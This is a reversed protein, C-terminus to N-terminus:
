WSYRLTFRAEDRNRVAAIGSQGESFKKPNGNLLAPFYARQVKGPDGGFYSLSIGTTFNGSFRYGLGWLVAYTSTDWAYAFTIRPSLRDQFYGTFATLTLLGTWQGAFASYNGDYDDNGGEYDPVYRLFMQSNVFFSRNPNIFNIFTPRDVSVTLVYIDSTSRGTYSNTNSISAGAIWSFEVGWSTRTVDEAFDLAFGFVNRKQYDIYYERGAQWQFDRRGYRGDGAAKKFPLTQGSASLIASVTACGSPTRVPFNEGDKGFRSEFKEQEGDSFFEYQIAEQLTDGPLGSGCLINDDSIPGASYDDLGDYVGDQDEDFDRIIFQDGRKTDLDQLMFNSLESATGTSSTLRIEANFTQIAGTPDRWKLPVTVQKGSLMDSFTQIDNSELEYMNVLARQGARFYPQGTDPNVVTNSRVTAHYAIPLAALQERPRTEGIETGTGVKLYCERSDPIPACDGGQAGNPAFDAFFESANEGLQEGVSETDPSTVDGFQLPEGDSGTPTFIRLLSTAENNTETGPYQVVQTDVQDSRFVRANRVFIGDAGAIRDELRTKEYNLDLMAELERFTEPPDFFQDPGVIELVSFFRQLNASFFELQSCGENFVTNAMPDPNLIFPTCNEAVRLHYTADNPDNPNALFVNLPNSPDTPDNLVQAQDVLDSSANYWFQKQSVCFSFDSDPDSPDGFGQGPDAPNHILNGDADTASADCRPDKEYQNAVKYLIVGKDLEDKDLEWPLPEVWGDTAKIQNADSRVWQGLMQGPFEGSAVDAATVQRLGYYAQNAAAQNPANPLDILAILDAREALKLPAFDDAILPTGPADPDEAQNAPAGNLTIGPEWRLKHGGFRTLRTGVMAGPTKAALVTTEQLMVSADANMFDIGGAIDRNSVDPGFLDLASRDESRDQLNADPAFGSLFGAGQVGSTQGDNTDWTGCALMYAPGCGLLAAIEPRPPATPNNPDQVLSDGGQDFYLAANFASSAPSGPEGPTIPVFIRDNRLSKKLQSVLQQEDLRITEIGRLVIDAVLGVGGLAQAILEFRAPNNLQDFPCFGNDPDFTMTCVFHFLTQNVSHLDRVSDSDRLEDFATSNPDSVPQFLLCDGASAILNDQEHGDGTLGDPGVSKLVDTTTGGDATRYRCTKGGARVPAGTYEDVTRDYENLLEVVLGDDWGWFDTVAFTFRDWRGEVRVAWDMEQIWTYSTNPRVEGAVGIGVFQHAYAGFGKACVLAIGGGEGCKGLDTPEFDDFIMALEVRLDEVPGVRMFAEPSLVFQAAWQGIRAEELRTVVGNSIDIPNLRDQNRFLETKGWVMLLKGIRAFLQSDFMEFEVYGERFENEDESAGHGWKLEDETFGLDLNSVISSEEKIFRTLKKSRFSSLGRSGEEGPGPARPRAPPTRGFQSYNLYDTGDTPDANVQAPRFDRFAFFPVLDPHVGIDELRVDPDSSGSWSGSFVNLQVCRGQENIGVGLGKSKKEFTCGAQFAQSLTAVQISPDNLSVCSDDTNDNPTGNDIYKGDYVNLCGNAQMASEHLVGFLVLDRGGKQRATRRNDTLGTVTVVFRYNPVFKIPSTPITPDERYALDGSWIGGYNKPNFNTSLGPAGILPLDDATDSVGDIGTFNPVADTGLEDTAVGTVGLLCNACIVNIDRTVGSGTEDIYDALAKDFVGLPTIPTNITALYPVSGQKSRELTSFLADMVEPQQGKFGGNGEAIRKFKDPDTRAALLNLDDYEPILPYKYAGDGLRTDVIFLDLQADELTVANPDLPASSINERLYVGRDPTVPTGAVDNLGIQFTVADDGLYLLNNRQNIQADSVPVDPNTGDLAPRQYESSSRAILGNLMRLRQALMSQTNDRVTANGRGPIFGQFVVEEGELVSSRLFEGTQLKEELINPYLPNIDGLPARAAALLQVYLKNNFVGGRTKANGGLQADGPGDLQSKSYANAFGAFPNPNVVQGPGNNIGRFRKSPNYPDNPKRLSRPRYKTKLVGGNWTDPARTHGLQAPTRSISRNAGGYSNINTSTGCGREYICEYTVIWRQFAMMFDFPGWGDPFIENEAEINLVNRFQSFTEGNAPIDPGITSLRLEYFGHIEMKREGPLELEIAGATRSLSLSGVVVLALAWALGNRIM